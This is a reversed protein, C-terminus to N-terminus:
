ECTKDRRCTTAARHRRPKLKRQRAFLKEVISERERFFKRASNKRRARRCEEAIESASAACFIKSGARSM